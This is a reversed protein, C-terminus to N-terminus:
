MVYNCERAISFNKEKSIQEKIAELDKDRKNVYDDSTYEIKIDPIVGRDFDKGPLVLTAVPINARLKSNPLELLKPDSLFDIRGGTEQGVVTGMKNHQFVSAFVVGASFTKHSILLFVKGEFTELLKRPQHYKVPTETYTGLDAKLVNDYLKSDRPRETIRYFPLWWLFRPIGKKHYQSHLWYRIFDKYPKSAKHSIEGVKYPSDTLHDMVYYGWEGNGGPCQRLDIVLYRKDSHKEFFDDIFEEFDQRRGYSLSPLKLVPFTESGVMFSSETYARRDILEEQVETSFGAFEKIFEIGKYRFTISWPPEMKFYTQLFLGFYSSWKVMKFHNLTGDVFKMSKSIMRKIPTGNVSLIEAHDPVESEGLKECVFIRDGIPTVKLPFVSSTRKEWKSPPEIRTHGDQISAAIEQLHYYCDFINFEFADNSSIREKIIETKARFEDESILRYPDGHVEDIRSVYFDIDQILESKTIAYNTDFDECKTKMLPNSPPKQLLGVIYAFTLVVIFITVALLNM